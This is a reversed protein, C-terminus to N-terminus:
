AQRPKETRREVWQVVEVGSLSTVLRISTSVPKIRRSGGSTPHDRPNPVSEISLYATLAFLCVIGCVFIIFVILCNILQLKM